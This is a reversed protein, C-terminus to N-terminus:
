IIELERKLTTLLVARNGQITVMDEIRVGGLGPIYIGPEVTFVMGGSIVGSSTRSLFPQEHVDLGVGHGTGHGFSDGYGAKKITSRAVEDIDKTRMGPRVSQITKHRARNVAEYIRRKEGSDGGAFLLTRTMDSHYGEAEGGWDIIVFDGREIRKETPKAHPMSANKGSAVITDFPVNGCGSRKLEEELRLAVERERVGVKIGPKISLFAEEAREVAKKIAKLEEDDKTKRANEILNRQPVLTIGPRRLHEYFDFSLSTEFGLKRIGLKRLLRRLTDMRKGKQIVIEWRAVEGESQEQYRFDTVFLRRDGTILVFASSGTFGTLYRVNKITDVYLADIGRRKITEQIARARATRDAMAKGQRM